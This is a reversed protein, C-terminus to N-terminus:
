QMRQVVIFNMRIEGAVWGVLRQFPLKRLLKPIGGYGNKIYFDMPSAFNGFIKLSLDRYARNSWYSLGHACYESNAEAVEKWPKGYQFQNRVGLLAWLALWWRPCNPWFCNVLPVFIHPESPLYWKAPFLHMSFGGTKLVRRIEIFLEEKNQAHELVSTSIVVDFAGDQYPLRYPM